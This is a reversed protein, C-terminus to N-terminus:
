MAEWTGDKFAAAPTSEVLAVAKKLAAIIHSADGTKITKQYASHCHPCSEYVKTLQCLGCKPFSLKPTGIYGLYLCLDCDKCEKRADM